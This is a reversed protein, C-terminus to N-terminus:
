AGVGRRAAQVRTRGCRAALRTRARRSSTRGVSTTFAASRPDAESHATHGRAHQLPRALTAARRRTRPTLPLRARLGMRAGDDPPLARGQRQHAAPLAQDHPAPDAHRALLQASPRPQKVYVWANDTMLRKATIGHEAYFALARELFGAVTAADSTPTSRPTPSGPTTTSSRTCSTSATATSATRAQATAPSATAPGSSAPTSAPTWTCCIAPAPGSTATPRSGRRGRRGRSARRAQAGELRDLPLLRDRRRGPAAGLGDRPPLRLDGRRARARAAAALPASPELSRVSVVADGAGGRGGGALPAVLPAGDGAVRQLRGRGGEADDRGRDRSVLAYRGALGLKANRHFSM